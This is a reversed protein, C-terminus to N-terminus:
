ISPIMHHSIPKWAQPTSQEGGHTACTTKDSSHLIDLFRCRSRRVHWAAPTRHSFRSTPWSNSSEIAGTRWKVEPFSWTRSTEQSVRVSYEDGVRHDVLPHLVTHTLGRAVRCRGMTPGGSKTGGQELVHFELQSTDLTIEEYGREQIMHSGTRLLKCTGLPLRTSHVKGPKAEGGAM